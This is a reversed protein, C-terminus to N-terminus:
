NPMKMKLKILRLSGQAGEVDLKADEGIPTDKEPTGIVENVTTTEGGTFFADEVSLQESGQSPTDTGQNTELAEM